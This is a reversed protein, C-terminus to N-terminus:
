SFLFFSLQDSDHYFYVIFLDFDSSPQGLLHPLQPCQAEQIRWDETVGLSRVQVSTKNTLQALRHHGTIEHFVWKPAAKFTNKWCGM